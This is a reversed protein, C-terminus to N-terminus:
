KRWADKLHVKIAKEINARYETRTQLRKVIRTGKEDIRLSKM